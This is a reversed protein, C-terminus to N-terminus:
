QELAKPKTVCFEKAQAAVAVMGGIHRAVPCMRAPPLDVLGFPPAASLVKRDLLDILPGAYARADEGAMGLAFALEYIRNRSLPPIPKERPTASLVEDMLRQVASLAQPEGGAVAIQAAGTGMQSSASMQTFAEKARKESASRGFEALVLRAYPRLDNKFPDDPIENEHFSTRVIADVIQPNAPGLQEALAIESAYLFPRDFVHGKIAASTVAARLDASFCPVTKDDRSDARRQMWPHAFHKVAALRLANWGDSDFVELVELAVRNQNQEVLTPERCSDPAAWLPARAGGADLNVLRERDRVALTKRQEWEIVDAGHAWWGCFFALMVTLLWALQILRRKM